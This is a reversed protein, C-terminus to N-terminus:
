LCSIQNHYLPWADEVLNSETGLLQMSIASFYVLTTRMSNAAIMYTFNKNTIYVYPM